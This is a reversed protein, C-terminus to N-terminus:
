GRKKGSLFIFCLYGLFAAAGGAALQYTDNPPKFKDHTLVDVLNLVLGAIMTGGCAFFAAILLHIWFPTSDAPPLGTLTEAANTSIAPPSEKESISQAFVENM